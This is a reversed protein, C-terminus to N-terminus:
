YKKKVKALTWHKWLRQTRVNGGLSVLPLPRHLIKRDLANVQIPPLPFDFTSQLPLTLGSKYCEM